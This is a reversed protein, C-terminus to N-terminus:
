IYLNIHRQVHELFCFTAKAPFQVWIFDQRRLWQALLSSVTNCHVNLKTVQLNTVYTRRLVLLGGPIRKLKVEQDEFKRKVVKTKPCVSAGQVGNIDKYYATLVIQLQSKFSDPM